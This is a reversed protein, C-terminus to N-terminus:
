GRFHGSASREFVGGSGEGVNVGCQHETVGSEMEPIWFHRESKGGAMFGPVARGCETVKESQDRCDSSDLMTVDVDAQVLDRLDVGLRAPRWQPKLLVVGRDCNRVNGM